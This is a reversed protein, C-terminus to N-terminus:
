AAAKRHSGADDRMWRFSQGTLQALWVDHSRYHERLIEATAPDIKERYYGRNYVKDPQVDFRELGLFEFVRQCMANTDDFLDAADLLLTQERPYIQWLAV